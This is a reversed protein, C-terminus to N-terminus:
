HERRIAIKRVAFRDRAKHERARGYRAREHIAQTIVAMLDEGWEAAIVRAMTHEDSGDPLPGKAAARVIAWVIEDGWEDAWTQLISAEDWSLIFCEDPFDPYMVRYQTESEWEHANWLPSKERGRRSGHARLYGVDLIDLRTELKHFTDVLM